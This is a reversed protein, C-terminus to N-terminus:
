IHEISVFLIESYEEYCGFCKLDSMHPMSYLIYGFDVIELWFINFLAYKVYIIGYKCTCYELACSIDVKWYYVDLGKLRVTESFRIVLVWQSLENWLNHWVMMNGKSRFYPIGKCFYCYESAFNWFTSFDFEKSLM